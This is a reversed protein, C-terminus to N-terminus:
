FSRDRENLPRAVLRVMVEDGAERSSTKEDLILVGNAGLLTSILGSGKVQLPSASYGDGVRTVVVRVFARSGLRNTIRKSLRAGVTSVPDAEIGRLFNLLPFVLAEFGAYAAVPYGSLIFIPKSGVKAVKTASGPRMAVGPVLFSHGPFTAITSPVLDREGVSSGGTTVIVDCTSLGKELARRIQKEEDAAIGLDLPECGKEEVLSRLMPKNSNVMKGPAPKEGVEVLESGTSLIGVRLLRRVLVKSRGAAALAALHWPRLLSGAAVVVDGKKYDEGKRAVNQLRMVAARFVVSEGKRSSEEKMIVANGGRPMPSGTMVEVAKGKSLSPLDGPIAGAFAKGIVKLAGLKEPDVDSDGEVRVAYGDMAAKDFPPINQDSKVTEALIRGNAHVLPLLETELKPPTLAAITVQLAPELQLRGGWERHGHDSL